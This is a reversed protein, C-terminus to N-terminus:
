RVTEQKRYMICGIKQRLWSSRRKQVQVVKGTTMATEDTVHLEVGPQRVEDVREHRGKSIELMAVTDTLSRRGYLEIGSRRSVINRHDDGPNLRSSRRHDIM